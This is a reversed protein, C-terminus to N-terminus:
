FGGPEIVFAFLFENLLEDIFGEGFSSEALHAAVVGMAEGVLRCVSEVEHTCFAYGDIGFFVTSDHDGIEDGVFDTVAKSQAVIEGSGGEVCGILEFVEVEDVFTTHGGADHIIHTEIDLGNEGSVLAVVIGGDADVIEPGDFIAVLLIRTEILISFFVIEIFDGALVTLGSEEIEGIFIGIAM